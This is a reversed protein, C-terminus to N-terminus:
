IILGFTKKTTLYGQMEQISADGILRRIGFGANPQREM